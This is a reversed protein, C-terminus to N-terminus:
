PHLPVVIPKGILYRNFVPVDVYRAWEIGDVAGIDARRWLSRWVRMEILYDYQYVSNPALLTKEMVSKGEPLFIRTAPRGTILSASRSPVLGEAVRVAEVEQASAIRFVKEALGLKMMSNALPEALARSILQAAKLGGATLGAGLAADIAARKISSTEAFTYLGEYLGVAIASGIPGGVIFGATGALVSGGIRRLNIGRSPNVTSAYENTGASRRTLWRAWRPQYYDGRLFQAWNEVDTYAGWQGQYGVSDPQVQGGTISDDYVLNGYSDFWSNSLITNPYLRHVLNGAPDFAYLRYTSVRESCALGNAGYAYAQYFGNTPNFEFIVREGDYLYYTRTALGGPQKWARKGDPRYAMGMTGVQVVRNEYDYSYNVSDFLTPNGNEDYAFGTRAIQNNANYGINTLNRITTLNDAGDYRFPLSYGSIDYGNRSLAGLLVRSPHSELLDPRL